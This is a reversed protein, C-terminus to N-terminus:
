MAGGCARADCRRVLASVHQLDGRLEMNEARLTQNEVVVDVFKKELKEDLESRHQDGLARLTALQENVSRRVAEVRKKSQAVALQKEEGRLQEGRVFEKEMRRMIELYKHMRQSQDSQFRQLAQEQRHLEQQLQTHALSLKTTITQHKEMETLFFEILPEHERPLSSADVTSRVLTSHDCCRTEQQAFREELEATVCRLTLGPVVAGDAVPLRCCM